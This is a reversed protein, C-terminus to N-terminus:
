MLLIKDDITNSKKINRINWSLIRDLKQSDKLNFYKMLCKYKMCEIIIETRQRIESAKKNVKDRNKRHNYKMIKRNINILELTKIEKSIKKSKNKYKKIFESKLKIDEKNNREIYYLYICDIKEQTEFFDNKYKITHLKEIFYDMEYIVCYVMLETAFFQRDTERREEMIESCILKCYDNPISNKLLNILDEDM